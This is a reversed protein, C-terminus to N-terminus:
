NSGRWLLGESRLRRVCERRLLAEREARESPPVPDSGVALRTGWPVQEAVTVEQGTQQTLASIAREVDAEPPVWVSVDLTVV